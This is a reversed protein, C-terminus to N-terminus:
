NTCDKWSTMLHSKHWRCYFETGSQISNRFIMMEFVLLSNTPMIRSLITPELSGSTRLDPLRDPLRDTRRPSLPRRKSSENEGSQGKQQLPHELHNQETSFCNECRTGWFRTRSNRQYFAFIQSWGGIGGDGSRQDMVYNGYSMTFLYM